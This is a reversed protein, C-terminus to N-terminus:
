AMHDLKILSLASDRDNDDDTYKNPLPIYMDILSLSPSFFLLYILPLPYVPPLNIPPTLQLLYVYSSPLASLSLPIRNLM